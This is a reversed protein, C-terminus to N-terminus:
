SSYATDTEIVRMDKWKGQIFRFYFSIGLVSVYATIFVWCAMLGYDLIVVAIYTPIVMIAWSLIVMMFMVFRTDGAGKIAFSFIINLTDFISYVAVFRLLLVGMTHIQEYSEADNMRTFPALFLDPVLVYALSISAMYIFTLHLGSYTSKEAMDPRNRGLYQGVLVSVATGCGIMPMFALFNINFAINTAVLPVTGLRGVLLIFITFSTIDLCFQIGSPLGFRMLRMFLEKDPRWGKLVHYKRDQSASSILFMYALVAFISAILTAIGAGRIGLEPFGWKGFIFAYDLVINVATAFCNVWMVPWPKGRGAFYSAFAAAAISPGGSLCLIQFYETEDRQVLVDHGILRFISESFPLICVMIIGGIASLYLGQWISPGIREYRESGFYQAVFTGVYSATGIFLSMVALALISAPMAAAIAAASYWSLFMRDVFHQISTAGTSLILPVAIVLVERYGGQTSWRNSLFSMKVVRKADSEFRLIDFM